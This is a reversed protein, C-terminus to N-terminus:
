EITIERAEAEPEKEKKPLKVKLVGNDMAATIEDANVNEILIQRMTSAAYRERVMYHRAEDEDKKEESRESQITLISDKYRVKIQDKTVGPMDAEVMFHDGEDRLDIAMSSKHETLGEYFKKFFRDEPLLSPGTLIPFRNAM